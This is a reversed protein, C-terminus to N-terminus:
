HHRHHHGHHHAHGSAEVDVPTGGPSVATRGMTTQINVPLRYEAPIDEDETASAVEAAQHTPVASLAECHRIWALPIAAEVGAVFRDFVDRDHGPHRALIASIAARDLGGNATVQTYLARFVTEPIMGQTRASEAAPTVADPSERQQLYEALLAVQGDSFDDHLVFDGSADHEEPHDMYHDPDHSVIQRVLPRVDRADVQHARSLRSVAGLVEGLEHRDLDALRGAAMIATTADQESITTRTGPAQGDGAVRAERAQQRVESVVRAVDLLGNEVEQDAATMEGAVRSLLAPNVPSWNSSFTRFQQAITERPAPRRTEHATVPAQPAQGGNLLSAPICGEGYAASLAAFSGAALHRRWNSSANEAATSSPRADREAPVESSFAGERFSRYSM